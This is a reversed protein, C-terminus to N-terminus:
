RGRSAIRSSQPSAMLRGGRGAHEARLWDAAVSVASEHTAGPLRVVEARVREIVEWLRQDGPDVFHDNAGLFVRVRVHAPLSLSQLQRQFESNRGMDISPQVEGDVYVRIRTREDMAFWMHTLCGAGAHRFLEVEKGAALIPREKGIGSFTRLGTAPVGAPRSSSRGPGDQGAATSGAALFAATTTTVLAERRNM